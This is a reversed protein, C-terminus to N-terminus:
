TARVHSWRGDARGTQAAPPEHFRLRLLHREPDTFATRGHLTIHNDIVLLGDSPVVLRMEGPGSTLQEVLADLARLV